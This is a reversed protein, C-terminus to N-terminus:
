TCIANLYKHLKTNFYMQRVNLAHVYLNGARPELWTRRKDYVTQCRCSSNM